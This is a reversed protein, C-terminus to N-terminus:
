RARDRGIARLDDDSLFIAGKASFGFFHAVLYSSLALAGLLYPLSFAAKNGLQYGGVVLLGFLVLNSAVVASRLKNFAVQRGLLGFLKETSVM